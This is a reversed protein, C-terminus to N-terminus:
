LSLYLTFRRKNVDVIKLGSQCLFSVKWISKKGPKYLRTIKFVTYLWLRKIEQQIDDIEKM